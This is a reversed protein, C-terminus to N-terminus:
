LPGQGISTQVMCMCYGHRTPEIAKVDALLARVQSRYRYRLRNMVMM